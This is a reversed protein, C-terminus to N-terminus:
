DGEKKTFHKRACSKCFVVDCFFCRFGRRVVDIEKGCPCIVPKGHTINSYQDRILTRIEIRHEESMEDGVHKGISAAGDIIWNLDSMVVARGTRYTVEALAM